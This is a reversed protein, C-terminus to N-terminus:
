QDNRALLEQSLREQRAAVDELMHDPVMLGAAKAAEFRGDGDLLQRHGEETNLPATTTTYGMREERQDPSEVTHAGAPEPLQQPGSQRASPEGDGFDVIQLVNVAFDKQDEDYVITEIEYEFVLSKSSEHVVTVEQDGHQAILRALAVIAVSAKLKDGKTSPNNRAM